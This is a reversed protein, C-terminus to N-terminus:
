HGYGSRISYQSDHVTIETVPGGDWCRLTLYANSPKFAARADKCEGGLVVGELSGKFPQQISIEIPYLYSPISSSNGVDFKAIVLGFHWSADLEGDVPDNGARERFVFSPGLISEM